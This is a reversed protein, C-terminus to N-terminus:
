GSVLFLCARFVRVGGAEGCFVGVRACTCAGVCVCVCLSARNACAFACDSCLSSNLNGVSAGDARLFSVAVIRLGFTALCVAEPKFRGIAIGSM